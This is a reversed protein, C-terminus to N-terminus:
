RNREWITNEEIAFLKRMTNDIKEKSPLYYIQTSKIDTHRMLHKAIEIPIDREALYHGFAHRLSHTSYRYLKGPKGEREAYTQTLGARECVKRFVNRARNPSMYPTKCKSNNTWFLYGKHQKIENEYTAIYELLLYELKEHMYMFDTANYHKKESHVIVQKNKFDLDKLNLKVVEGIRLGLFAQVLFLVKFRYEEPKFHSFFLDLDRLPM